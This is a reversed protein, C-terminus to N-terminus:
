FAGEYNGTPAVVFSGRRRDDTRDTANGEHKRNREWTRVAAKWDKMANSGVKWGKSEYFDFFLEADIGNGRERCYTKIDDITPKKFVGFSRKEKKVRVNTLTEKKIEENKIEKTQTPRTDNVTDAANEQSQYCEYKCITILTFRHTTQQTAEHTAELNRLATRLSRVGIGLTNALKRLSIVVQGRKVVIGQWKKDETNATLLLHLFVHKTNADNYWEWDLFKRHLKIWGSM